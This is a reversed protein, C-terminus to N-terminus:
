SSSTNIHPLLYTACMFKSFEKQSFYVFATQNAERKKEKKKRKQVSFILSSWGKQRERESLM